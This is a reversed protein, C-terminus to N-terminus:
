TAGAQADPAIPGAISGVVQQHRRFSGKNRGTSLSNSRESRTPRWSFDAASFAPYADLHMLSGWRSIM